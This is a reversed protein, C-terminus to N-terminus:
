IYENLKQRLQQKNWEKNLINANLESFFPLRALVQTTGFEELTKLNDEHPSGNLVIGIVNLNRNRLAELSLLTHNLTGLGTKAVLIIPLDWVKLQDIQLLNRNLPDGVLEAALEKALVDPDIALNALGNKVLKENVDNM